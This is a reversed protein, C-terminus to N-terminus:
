DDPDYTPLDGGGILSTVGENEIKETVQRLARSTARLDELTANAAPITSQSLQQAAPQADKLTATLAEAAQNATNLTKRVEDALAAGEQNLLRDTSNLVKDASGTVREFGVLANSAERLTVQLEALTRETQPATDALAKSIENTNRLIGAIEGQNGDSLLMTLRETLTALRELLLPANAIIQGFGGAQPPIVPAGEPCATTECTIAPANRRAGDLLITSVGTFSSQLTATTGVLIAADPEVRIRVRVFGPDDEWLRIQSVQGIPVGAFTVESGNALGAVSQNFFIDYEKQDATGLRALWVIFLALLALLILTVAGVWVHNARTEM